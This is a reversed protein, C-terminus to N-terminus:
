IKISVLLLFVYYKQFSKSYENYKEGIAQKTGEQICVTCHLYM